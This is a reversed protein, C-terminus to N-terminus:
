RPVYRENKVDENECRPCVSYHVLVYPPVLNEDAWDLLKLASEGVKVTKGNKEIRVRAEAAVQHCFRCSLGAM